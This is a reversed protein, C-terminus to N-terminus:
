HPPHLPTGTACRMYVASHGWASWCSAFFGPQLAPSASLPTRAARRAEGFECCFLRSMASPHEKELEMTLYPPDDTPEMEKAEYNAQKEKMLADDEGAGGSRDSHTLIPCRTPVRAVAAM